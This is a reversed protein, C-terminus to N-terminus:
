LSEAAEAPPLEAEFFSYLLPLVFLTIATATVLGGVIVTAFPRATEAGVARSLAAPLLGLSAMLATMVVPRMRSLAGERVAEAESMGRGRLERIREIMLVGNQVAVGFLAIFGVLSAVSLALGAVWLALVGGVAAFPVNLLILVAVRASGFALFLLFFIATLTLPVILLLRRVARQQNEFAGTWVMRYGPPLQLAAAVRRQGDGVLSGLDRGAVSLKVAIRRANEERYIRAFGPAVGVRALSGLTLKEGNPGLVPLARIADLDSIALPSMKVVLDFTREGELVRSAVGGGLATEIVSQVDDVTLGARAIAQRDV